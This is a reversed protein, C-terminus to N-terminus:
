GLSALPRFAARSRAESLIVSAERLIVNGRKMALPAQDLWGGTFGARRLGRVIYPNKRMHALGPRQPLERDHGSRDRTSASITPTSGAAVGARDPGHESRSMARAFTQTSPTSSATARLARRRLRERMAVLAPIAIEPAFPISGGVATPAITGDDRIEDLAAGRACYTRPVSAAHRRDALTADLPGDRPRSDGSTPATARWGEPNAIAYARQALTARRSNEFYDIGSGRM